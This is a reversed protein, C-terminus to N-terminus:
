QYQVNQWNGKTESYYEDEDTLKMEKLFKNAIRRFGENGPHSAVGGSTIIEYESTYTLTGEALSYTTVDLTSNYPNGGVSFTITINKINDTSSNVVVNTVDAITRQASGKKQINGIKSSADSGLLNQFSIFKCGTKNCANQIAKYKDDSGYWMGMWVIRAKPCKARLAKCLALSSKPFVARKEDTNVNDGIQISIMTEDGILVDITKKVAEDIEGESTLNEINVGSIKKATYEPNLTKIFETILHFYDHESDSAAMGYGSGMLLSNGYMAGKSPVIPLATLTGDDQVSLEFKNGSPSILETDSGELNSVTENLVAIKTAADEFLEKANNGNLGKISELNEYVEFDTVRWTVTGGSTGASVSLWVSFETWGKYVTYYAPDFSLHVEDGNKGNDLAVSKDAVYDTRGDSLWVSVYDRAGQELLAPTLCELKFKIHVYNKGSPIFPPKTYSWTSGQSKTTIEFSNETKNSVNFNDKTTLYINKDGNRISLVNFKNSLVNSQRLYMIPGVHESYIGNPHYCPNMANVNETWKDWDVVISIKGSDGAPTSFVKDLAYQVGAKTNDFGIGFSILSQLYHGNEDVNYFGVSRGGESPSGHITVLAYTYKPEKDWIIELDLLFDQIQNLYPNSVCKAGDYLSIRSQKNNIIQMLTNDMSAFVNDVSTKNVLNYTPAVVIKFNSINWKAGANGQIWIYLGDAYMVSSLAFDVSVFASSGISKITRNEGQVYTTGNAVWLGLNASDELLKEADFTILIGLKSYNDLSEFEERTGVHIPIWQPSTGTNHFIFSNLKKNEVLSSKIISDDIVKIPKAVPLISGNLNGISNKFYEINREVSGNLSEISEGFYSEISSLPVIYPVQGTTKVACMRIYNVGDPIEINCGKGNHANGLFVPNDYSKDAYGWVNGKWSTYNFDGYCRYKDGKKVPIIGSMYGVYTANSSLSGNTLFQDTETLNQFLSNGYTYLQNINAVNNEITRLISILGWHESKCYSSVFSPSYDEFESTLASSDVAISIKANWGDFSIEKDLIFLLKRETTKFDITLPKSANIFVGKEDVEYFNIHIDNKGSFYFSVPAFNRTSDSIIELDLIVDEIVSYNGGKSCIDADLIPHKKWRHLISNRTALQSMVKDEANGFEQVVNEKDFKKDLEAAVESKEAKSDIATDQEQNKTALEDIAGQATVATMGSTENNYSVANATSAGGTASIDKIANELQHTKDGIQQLNEKDGDLFIQKAAGLKGKKTKVEIEDTLNISM